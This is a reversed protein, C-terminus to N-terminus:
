EQKQKYGITPVYTVENHYNQSTQLSQDDSSNSGESGKLIESKNSEKHKDYGNPRKFNKYDKYENSNNLKNFFNSINLFSSEIVTSLNTSLSNLSKEVNNYFGGTDERVYEGNKYWIRKTIVGNEDYKIIAPDWVNYLKNESYYEESKITGNQYYEIVAPVRNIHNDLENKTNHWQKCQIKGDEYYEIYTPDISSIRSYLDNIFWKKCKINGNKYLEIVAPKDQNRYKKSDKFWKVRKIVHHKYYFEIVQPISMYLVNKHCLTNLKGNSHMEFYKVNGNEYFEAVSPVIILFNEYNEIYTQLKNYKSSRHEIKKLNGNEYYEIFSPKINLENLMLDVVELKIDGDNIYYYNLSNLFNNNKNKELLTIRLCVNITNKFNNNSDNTNNESISKM